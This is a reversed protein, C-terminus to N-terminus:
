KGFSGPNPRPIAFLPGKHSHTLARTPANNSLPVAQPLTPISAKDRRHLVVSPITVHMLM